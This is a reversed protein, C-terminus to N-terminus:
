KNIKREGDGGEERERESIKRTCITKPTHTLKSPTSAMPAFDITIQNDNEYKANRKKIRPNAM